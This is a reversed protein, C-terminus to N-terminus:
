FVSGGMQATGDFSWLDMSSTDQTFDGSLLNNILDDTSGDSCPQQFFKMYLEFDSLEKFTTGSAIENNPVSQGVINNLQEQAGCSELYASNELEFATAALVSSVDPTKAENPSENEPFGFLNSGQDSYLRMGGMVTPPAPKIVPFPSPEESQMMSKVETFDFSSCFDQFPDNLCDFCKDTRPMETRPTEPATLKTLFTRVRPLAADPFNVKAKKGRIRRAEADYARAAEEATNFTGLWVRVGKCPDRIEAAWKGWPRRRIGRYQNKRNKKASKSSPKDVVSPRLPVPKDAALALMMFITFFNSCFNSLYFFLSYSQGVRSAFAFRKFRFLDDEDDEEFQMFDAEFDDDTKESARRPGRSTWRKEKPKEGEKVGYENKPDPRQCFATLRRSTPGSPIIYSIFAGGCM